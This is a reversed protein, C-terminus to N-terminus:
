QHLIRRRKRRSRNLAALVEGPLRERDADSLDEFVGLESLDTITENLLAQREGKRFRGGRYRRQSLMHGVLYRKAEVFPSPAGRKPWRADMILEAFEHMEEARLLEAARAKAREDGRRVRPALRRLEQRRM